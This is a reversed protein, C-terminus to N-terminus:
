AVPEALTPLDRDRADVPVIEVISGDELLLAHDYLHVTTCVHLPVLALVVGLDLAEHDAEVTLPLHEESPRLPVLEPHGAVACHPWGSDVSVGKVGADCTIRGAGPRSVVRSLVAVAPAHGPLDALTAATALDGYVLTGPGVTHHTRALLEDHALADRFTGTGSTVVEEVAIGRDVLADVLACLRESAAHVGARRAAPDAKGLHGDYAHLGRLPVGRVALADVVALVDDHDDVAVGTRGMGVDLDIFAGAGDVVHAVQPLADVLVAIRVDPHRAVTGAVRIASAPHPLHALLVDPVGATALLELERTTACKMRTVGAGLLRNVAWTSKVTKVHPRWRSVDGIVAIAAAVNADVQAPVIALAPTLIADPEDIRFRSPDAAV